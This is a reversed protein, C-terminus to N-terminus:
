LFGESHPAEVNEKKGELIMSVIGDQVSGYKGSKNVKSEVGFHCLINNGISSHLKTNRCHFKMLIVNFDLFISILEKNTQQLMGFFAHPQNYGFLDTGVDNRCQLAEGLGFPNLM